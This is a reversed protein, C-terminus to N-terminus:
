QYLTSSTIATVHKSMHCAVNVHSAQSAALLLRHGWRITPYTKKM